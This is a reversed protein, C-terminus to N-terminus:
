MFNGLSAVPRDNWGIVNLIAKIPELFVTDFQVDYDVFEELGFEKPLMDGFSIINENIKNPLKLYVYKIKDGDVIRPYKMELKNKILLENFLLSGRVHMPTGKKYLITRDYYKILGKVSTNRAIDEPSFTDFKERFNIIFEQVDNETKTLIIHICEEITKRCVEPTTSRVSEVGTIKLEPPDYRIGENDHVNLMYRKKAQWIGTNAVAERKMVLFNGYAHVTDCFEQLIEKIKANFKESARCLFEVPNGPSYKKVFDNLCIFISDTDAYCIYAIKDTKLIENIYKNMNKEVYQIIAQGTVTVAEANAISYYRCYTNGLAGYLSNLLIKLAMQKTNLRAIMKKDGDAKKLEMMEKRTKKREDFMTGILEPIVGRKKHSYRAGNIGIVANEEDDYVFSGDLFSSVSIEKNRRPLLTEPSINLTRIINPYLSELDFSVVWDYRGPIPDKVFAGDFKESKIAEKSDRFPIVINKDALYNYIINDWTAIPSFIDEYNIKAGYAITFALGLLNMKDDLALVIDVDNINYDIFKEYDISYLKYGAVVEDGHLKRMKLEVNGIHDLRYSEQKKLGYKKYLEIYDLTAVGFIKYYKQIKDYKETEKEFILNYPSFNQEIDLVKMRNILYPVDFFKINWGSIVDPPNEEWYKSFLLLLEEEDECQKYFLNERKPVYKETGWVRFEKSLSNYLVISLVPFKADDPNPFGADSKVEIDFIFTLVKSSDWDNTQFKEHLFQYEYRTNGYLTFNEVEKYQEVFEKAKNISSFEKRKLIVGDLSYFTSTEDDSQVFLSPSFSEHHINRGNNSVARYYIRGRIVEANTYFM